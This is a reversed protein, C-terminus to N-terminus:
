VAEQYVRTRRSSARRTRARRSRMRDEPTTGGWIGNFEGTRVAFDLCKQRVQCGECIRLARTVQSQAAEGVAIPFFLDPDAGLCASVARWDTAYDIM